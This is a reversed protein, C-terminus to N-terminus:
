HVYAVEDRKFGVASVKKISINEQILESIVEDRKSIKEELKKQMDAAQKQNDRPKREFLQEAEEFLKKRWIYIDNPHIDYKEALQNIPVKNEFLERLILVKERSSIVKYKSM